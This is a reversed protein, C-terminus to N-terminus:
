DEEWVVLTVFSNDLIEVRVCELDLERIASIIASPEWDDACPIVKGSANRATIKALM